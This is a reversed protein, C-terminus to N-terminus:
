SAMKRQTALVRSDLCIDAKRSFYVTMNHIVKVPIRVLEELTYEYYDIYGGRHGFHTDFGRMTPLAQTRSLGVHWKGVLHTAYGMEKLYQPLIKQDLPLYRDESQVLPYGQM